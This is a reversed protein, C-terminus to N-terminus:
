SKPAQRWFHEDKLTELAVTITRGNGGEEKLRVHLPAPSFDLIKDVIFVSPVHDNKIFVSGQELNLNGGITKEKKKFLFM